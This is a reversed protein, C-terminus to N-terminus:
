RGDHLGGVAVAPGALAVTAPGRFAIPAVPGVAPCRRPELGMARVAPAKAVVLAVEMTAVRALRLRVIVGPIAPRSTLRSALRRGLVPCPVGVPGVRRPLGVTAAIAVVTPEGDLLPVLSGVDQTVALGGEPRPAAM